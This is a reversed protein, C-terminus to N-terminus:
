VAARSVVRACATLTLGSPGASAASGAQRTASSSGAKSARTVALHSCGHALTSGYIYVYIYKCIYMYVYVYM